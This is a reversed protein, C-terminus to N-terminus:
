EYNLQSHSEGFEYANKATVWGHQWHQWDSSFKRYPCDNVDKGNLYSQRGFIFMNKHHEIILQEVVNSMNNM